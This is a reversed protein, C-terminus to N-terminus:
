RQFWPGHGAVLPGNLAAPIIVLWPYSPNYFVLISAAMAIQGLVICFLSREKGYRTALWGFFPISLLGLVSSASGGIGQLVAAKQLDGGLVYYTTLYGGMGLVLGELNLLVVFLLLLM